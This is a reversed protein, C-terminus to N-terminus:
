WHLVRVSEDIPDTWWGIAEIYLEDILEQACRITDERTRGSVRRGTRSAEHYIAVVFVGEDRTWEGFAWGRRHPVPDTVRM